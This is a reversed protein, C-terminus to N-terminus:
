LRSIIIKALKRLKEQNLFPKGEAKMNLCSSLWVAKNGKHFILVYRHKGFSPGEFAEDGIGSVSAHFFSEQSRWKNYMSLDQVTVKLLITGDKLAFGWPDPPMNLPDPPMKLPDIPRMLKIGRIGTVNEVDKITLLEKPETSQGFTITSLFVIFITLLIVKKVM